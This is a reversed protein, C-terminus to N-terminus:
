HKKPLRTPRFSLRTKNYNDGDRKTRPDDSRVFQNKGDILAIACLHEDYYKAALQSGLISVFTYASSATTWNSGDTTCLLQGDVGVGYIKNQWNLLTCLDIQAPTSVEVPDSWEAVNGCLDAQRVQQSNDANTTYWYLTTGITDVRQDIVQTM